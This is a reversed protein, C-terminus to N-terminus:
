ENYLIYDVAENLNRATHKSETNSDKRIFITRCGAAAGAQIDTEKDGVMWSEHLNVNHAEAAKLLMGPKPKRCSCNQRYNESGNDPHHPCYYISDVKAGEKGLEVNMASNFKNLDEETFYGRAIGSQNTVVIVLYGADNLRAIAKGAGEILELDLIKYQYNKDVVIVGDRDLFVAKM